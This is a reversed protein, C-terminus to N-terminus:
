SELSTNTKFYDIENSELFNQAEPFDCLTQADEIKVPKLEEFIRKAEDLKRREEALAERELRLLEQEKKLKLKRTSEERIKDGDLVKRLSNKMSLASDFRKERDVEMAKLLWDSLEDSISPNVTQPNPLPDINGAWIELVRKLSDFPLQKTLLHYLTAGLSFIDSRVDATQSGIEELQQKYFPMLAEKFSPDLVRYIQEFPSYNFTAAVFTHNTLTINSPFDSGKAIGFDLLKIKKRSNLKLNQPKIDRHITPPNLSHLYDLADLIQNAWKLVEETEFPTKRSKLLESLDKGQILEMVLFQSNNEVFYDIIQPFAEHQLQTLIKAEREFARRFTKLDKQNSIKDLFIEKLAVPKGFLKTDKAEYVTGMGGHGLPRIIEYREQLIQKKELM